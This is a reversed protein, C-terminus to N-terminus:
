RVLAERVPLAYTRARHAPRMCSSGNRVVIWYTHVQRAHFVNRWRPDVLGRRALSIKMFLDCATMGEAEVANIFDVHQWRYRGRHVQDALKALIVGSPALVKRAEALFPAFLPAISAGDYGETRTGYRDAYNGGMVGGSGAETVHPPDFVLADFSDPGFLHSLELFSGVTDVDRAPNIDLRHPQWPLGRWMKGQNFTVDLIRPESPAHLTLGLTLAEQDSQVLSIPRPTV